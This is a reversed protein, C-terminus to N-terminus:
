TLHNKALQIENERNLISAQPPLIRLVYAHKNVNFRFLAAASRGTLLPVYILNSSNTRSGSDFTELFAM